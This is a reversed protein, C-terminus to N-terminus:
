GTFDCNLNLESSYEKLQDFIRNSRFEDSIISLVIRDTDSELLRTYEKLGTQALLKLFEQSEFYQKCKEIVKHDKSIVTVRIANAFVEIKRKVESAILNKCSPKHNLKASAKSSECCVKGAREKILKVLRPDDSIVQVSVSSDEPNVTIASIKLDDSGSNGFSFTYKSKDTVKAEGEIQIKIVIGNEIESIIYKCDPTQNNLEDDYIVSFFSTDNNEPPFIKNKVFSCGTM